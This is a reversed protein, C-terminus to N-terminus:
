FSISMWWLCKQFIKMVNFIKIVIMFNRGVFVKLYKKILFVKILIFLNVPNSFTTSVLWDKYRSNNSIKHRTGCFNWSVYKINTKLSQNRSDSRTTRLHNYCNVRYNNKEWDPFYNIFFKMDYRKKSSIPKVTHKWEDLSDGIFGWIYQFVYDVIM